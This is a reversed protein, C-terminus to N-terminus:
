LNVTPIVEQFAQMSIVFSKEAVKIKSAETSGFSWLEFNINYTDSTQQGVSGFALCNLPSQIQSFNIDIYQGEGGYSATDFQIVM